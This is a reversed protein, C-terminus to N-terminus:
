TTRRRPDDTPRRLQEALRALDERFAIQYRAQETALRTQTDRLEAVAEEDLPTDPRTSLADIDNGFETLQNGLETSVATLRSELGSLQEALADIRAALESTGDPQAALSDELDRARKEHRQLTEDLRGIESQVREIDERGRSTRRFFSM